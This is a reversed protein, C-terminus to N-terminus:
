ERKRSEEIARDVDEHSLERLEPFRKSIAGESADVAGPEARRAPRIVSSKPPKMPTITVNPPAVALTSTAMSYFQEVVQPKWQIEMSVKTEVRPTISIELTKGSGRVEFERIRQFHSISVAM